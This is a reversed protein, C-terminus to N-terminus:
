NRRIIKREKAKEKKLDTQSKRNSSRKSKRLKNKFMQKVNKSNKM